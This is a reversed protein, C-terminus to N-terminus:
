LFAGCSISDVNEKNSFLLIFLILIRAGCFGSKIWNEILETIKKGCRRTGKRNWNRQKHWKTFYCFIPVCYFRQVFIFNLCLQSDITEKNSSTIRRSAYGIDSSAAFKRNTDTNQSILASEYVHRFQCFSKLFWWLRTETHVLANTHEKQLKM